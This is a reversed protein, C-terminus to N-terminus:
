GRDPDALYAALRDHRRAALRTGYRHGAPWAVATIAASALLGWAFQANSIRDGADPTLNHWLLLSPLTVVGALFPVVAYPCLVLIGWRLLMPRWRRRGAWRRRLPLPHYPFRIGVWGAAGLAGLPVAAIWVAVLATTLPRREHVGIAVAVLVCVPTALSWLVLNKAYWLRRLVTADGLAAASHRADAGLLNTAPVDAYMWVALVMAFALPSHLRFLADTARPPLLTWCAAMLAGNVLVVAPVDYPPRRARQAEARIAQGLTAPLGEDGPM